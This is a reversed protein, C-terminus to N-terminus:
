ALLHAQDPHEDFWQAVYWCMPRVLRGAAAAERVAHATVEGAYGHGRHAPNTFTRVMSVVHGNDAYDLSTVVEGGIRGLYRHRAEDHEFEV